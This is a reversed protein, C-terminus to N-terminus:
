LVPMWTIKCYGNGTHGTEIGGTPSPFSQNGAITTGNSVGGIYGSGGASASYISSGGGYWGGGGGPGTGSIDSTNMGYGFGACGVNENNNYGIGPSTQTGATPLTSRPEYSRAKGVVGVLGGGDGGTGCWYNDKEGYRHTNAGGGGGAVILVKDKQNAYRRLQGDGILNQQISTAGGGTGVVHDYHHDNNDLYGYCGGGGNFVDSAIGSTVSSLGSKGVSVYLTAEKIISKNGVSYGGKGGALTAVNHWNSSGGEAGWVELKYTTASPATFTQVNGTNKYKDFSFLSFILCFM